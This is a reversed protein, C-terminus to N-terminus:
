LIMLLKNRIFVISSVNISDITDIKTLVEENIPNSKFIPNINIDMMKFSMIGLYELNDDSM